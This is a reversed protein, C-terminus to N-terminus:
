DESCFLGIRWKPFVMLHFLILGFAGGFNTDDMSASSQAKQIKRTGQSKTRKMEPHPRKQKTNTPSLCVGNIQQM